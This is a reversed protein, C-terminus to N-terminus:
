LQIAPRFGIRNSRTEPPLKGRGTTRLAEGNQEFAGGRHVREWARESREVLPDRQPVDPYPAHHDRCWEAVNGAQDLTGFFGAGAPYSGVPAPFAHGDREWRERGGDDHARWGRGRDYGSYNARQVGGGAPREDGWPYVRGDIGRAAFEWQAETPLEANLWRCYAEAEESTVNVVPHDPYDRFYSPFGPLELGAPAPFGTAECFLRYQANTVERKGILFPSVVVEHEPAEGEEFDDSGRTFRGGPVYVFVLSADRTSAYELFGEENQGLSMLESLPRLPGYPHLEGDGPSQCAVVLAFLACIPVTKM